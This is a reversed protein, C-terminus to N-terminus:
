KGNSQYLVSALRCDGGGRWHSTSSFDCLGFGMEKMMLPRKLMALCLIWLSDRAGWTHHVWSDVRLLIFIRVHLFELPKESPVWVLCWVLDLDSSQSTGKGLSQPGQTGNVSPLCQCSHIKLGWHSFSFPVENQAKGRLYLGQRTGEAAIQAETADQPFPSFHWVLSQRERWMTVASPWLMRCDLSGRVQPVCSEWPDEAIALSIGRRYGSKEQLSSTFLYILVSIQAPSIARHNRTSTAKGSFRLQPWM